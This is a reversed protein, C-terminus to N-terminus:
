IIIDNKLIKNLYFLGIMVADAEDETDAELGIAEELSENGKANKVGFRRNINGKWMSPTIFSTTGLTANPLHQVFVGTISNLIPSNKAGKLHEVAIYRVKDFELPAQAFKEGMTKLREGMCKGSSELQFSGVLEGTVRFIAFGAKFSAPDIALLYGDSSGTWLKESKKKQRTM